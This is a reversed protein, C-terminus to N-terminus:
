VELEAGHRVPNFRLILRRSGKAAWRDIAEQSLSGDAWAVVLSTGPPVFPGLRQLRRASIGRGAWLGYLAGAAVGFLAWLIGTILGSEVTGLVGSDGGAFGM